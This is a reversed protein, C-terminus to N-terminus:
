PSIGYVDHGAWTETGLKDFPRKRCAHMFTNSFGKGPTKILRSTQHVITTM